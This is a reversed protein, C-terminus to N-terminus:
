SGEEVELQQVGRRKPSVARGMETMSFFFHAVSINVKCTLRCVKFSLCVFIVQTGTGDMSNKSADPIVPEHFGM